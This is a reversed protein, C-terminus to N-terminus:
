RVCACVCVFVHVCVRVWKCMEISLNVKQLNGKMEFIASNKKAVEHFVRFSLLKRFLFKPPNEIGLIKKPKTARSMTVSKPRIEPKGPFVGAWGWGGREPM